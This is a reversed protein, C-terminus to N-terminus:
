FQTITGVFSLVQFQGSGVYQLEIAADQRGTLHGSVGRATTTQATFQPTYIQDGVAVFKSGDSSLAVSVLSAYPSTSTLTWTAGSNTSTYIGADGAAVLKSGDSSSAVSVWGAAPSGSPTWTAGSNTSTYIFGQSQYAGSYMAYEAAAVLKSGDSSSAVSVWQNTSPASTLTWTAGSNTSTYIFGLWSSSLSLAAAVLKSGNSSSAVSVWNTSPASTQAWTAGSNASTYISDDDAAAVLKAGNTSSAVSVWWTNAPAGTLTWTAGSNASTFIFMYDWGTTAAVLKSGDSSSAVSAWYAAPVGSPTWTAGSNTSIYVPWDIVGYYSYSPDPAAILKTGDSSSAVARWSNPHELWPLSSILILQGPNQAIRWGGAGVSSVRVIDGVKPSTPLTITVQAANNALYGTNPQAQQNTGTVNQWTIGGGSSPLNTLGAGNGTFTGTLTVGTTGNTVVSPPLQAVTLNGVLQTAPLKGLLNSATNAMVAYPMPLISQRPLLTAFSTTGNTRVDLQLWRSPGTFVGVGFDLTVSFLGNSVHAGSSTLPGAISVGPSNTSDYVTFRFDVIGNALNTGSNLRGQYNFATGQAFVTTIQPDLTFLALLALGRVMRHITNM